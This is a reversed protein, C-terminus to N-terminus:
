FLLSRVVASAFDPKVRKDTSEPYFDVIQYIENETLGINLKILTM